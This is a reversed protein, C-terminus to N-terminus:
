RPWSQRCCPPPVEEEDCIACGLGQDEEGESESEGEEAELIDAVVECEIAEERPSLVAGAAPAPSRQAILDPTPLARTPSALSQGAPCIAPTALACIASADAACAISAALDPTALAGVRSTCAAQTVSHGSSGRAAPTPM